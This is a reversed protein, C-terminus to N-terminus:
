SHECVDDIAKPRISIPFDKLLLIYRSFVGNLKGDSVSLFKVHLCSLVGLSFAFGSIGVFRSVVQLSVVGVFVILSIFIFSACLLFRFTLIVLVYCTQHFMLFAVRYVPMFLGDIVEIDSHHLLEECM